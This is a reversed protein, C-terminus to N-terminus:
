LSQLTLNVVLRGPPNDSVYSYTALGNEAFVYGLPAEINYEYHWATGAQKEFVFEYQVGPAPPLFLRHTYDISFQTSAGAKVTSWTELVEKGSEEHWAVGPYAFLTQETSEITTVLPDSVYGSKAYNIPATIKKLVTGSANTLTTGNPVFIQVYDQNTTKYWSYPSKNGNHKRAVVLHGSLTGDPNIQAAYTVTSSVYLDSKGGNINTDVVALYDGNFKQPLAYVAGSAGYSDVMTQLALDKFYIMVDKNAIWNLVMALLAARLDTSGTGALGTGGLGTGVNATATSATGTNGAGVAGIDVSTTAVNATGSANMSAAATTSSALEAFVAKAFDGIVQKPYTASTAQGNQVIKQIQVLFNDATFTTASKGAGVTVPGTLSLLDSVVTPSVAVAGDFTTSTKAYLGSEEFFAITQSASTPFDFFWNADAPRWKSVELQLPKPPIIKQTFAADVDAVDHVDINTISGSAITVDAYSGLFGGAARLESPNELFVLIHHPQPESLWPLFADLASKASEVQTKLSLYFDAAWSHRRARFSTVRPM